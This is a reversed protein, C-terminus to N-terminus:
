FLPERYDNLIQLALPPLRDSDMTVSLEAGLKYTQVGAMALDTVPRAFVEAVMLCLMRIDAPLTAITCYGFSGTVRVGNEYPAWLYRGVAQNRHIYRYPQGMAVANRPELWYDSGSTWVIGYTGDGSEDSAVQTVAVADDIALIQPSWGGGPREWNWPVGVNRREPTYYRVESSSAVYFRRGTQKEIWRSAAEIAEILASERSDNEAIGLRDKLSDVSAYNVM